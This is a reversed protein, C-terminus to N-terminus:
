TLGVASVLHARHLARHITSRDCIKLRVDSQDLVLMSRPRREDATSQLPTLFAAVGILLASIWAVM